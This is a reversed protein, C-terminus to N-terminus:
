NPTRIVLGVEQAKALINRVGEFLMGKQEIPSSPKRQMEDQELQGIVGALITAVQALPTHNKLHHLTDKDNM